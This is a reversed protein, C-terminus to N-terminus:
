RELIAWHNPSSSSFAVSNRLETSFRLFLSVVPDIVVGEAESDHKASKWNDFPDREMPYWHVVVADEELGADVPVVVDEYPHYEDV